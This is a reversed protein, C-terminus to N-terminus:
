DMEERLSGTSKRRRVPHGSVKPVEGFDPGKQVLRSVSLSERGSRRSLLGEIFHKLRSMIERAYDLGSVVM